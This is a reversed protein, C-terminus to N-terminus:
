FQMQYFKFEDKTFYPKVLNYEKFNDELPLATVQIIYM